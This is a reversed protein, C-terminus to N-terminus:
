SLPKKKHPRLVRVTLGKLAPQIGARKLATNLKDVARYRFNENIILRAADQATDASVSGSSLSLLLRQARSSDVALDPHQRLIYAHLAHNRSTAITRYMSDPRVRYHLLFEPIVTGRRGAKALRCWFDWDEYSTLWTDYGGAEQAHDRRILSGSAAGGCNFAALLDRDPGLPIWGSRRDGPAEVFYSVMPSVYTLEPHARLLAAAKELLTPAILDDADLPLMLPARAEQIARNRTASLGRNPQHIIRIDPRSRSLQELLELSAADTSGDNILILEFDRFTQADVSALTEPLYRGLNYFPIFISVAPSPAAPKSTAAPGLAPALAKSRTAAIMGELDSLVRVPDCLARVRAPGRRSLRERLARDTLMRGIASALAAADAVPFHLGNREHEVIASLGGVDSVIVPAGLAMAELCVMPFSEWHSPFVCVGGSASAARIADALAKRPRAPEFVFRHLHHPPIRCKLYDLMSRGFPGTDSDNGILHFRANTSGLLLVAADVFDQPGKLFQLKGFFLVTPGTAGDGGAPAAPASAGLERLLEYPNIPVPLVVHEPRHELSAFPPPELGIRNLVSEAPAVVVDAEAVAAREIHEIRAYEADLAAIRDEGRCLWGPSHLRVALTSRPFLGLTRKARITFYGEGNYDPFEIYDFPKEASLRKLADLVAMSHRMPYTPYADLAADGSDFDVAHFTVGPRLKPGERLVNEHPATLIHVEHGRAALAASMQSAYSGIGGGFFPAFERSVLCIRLRARRSASVARAPLAAITDRVITGPDCLRAIRASAHARCRARLTEDALVGDLTQALGDADGAPFLLGSEGPEIIEAMGGADSGVVCAGLAMAELCVNPFNEWLSPFCCVGGSATAARILPALEERPVGPNFAFAGEHGPRVLSRLRALMSGGAFTTDDGVFQFRVRRGRGLLTNAARVLTEVGKRRELRGFFLVTPPEAQTRTESGEKAAGVFGQGSFPYPVVARAPGFLGLRLRQVVLDLLAHTPSLILDAGRIAEDEARSLAGIEPEDTADDNLRRAETTPTHLRVVLAAGALAGDERRARIVAHGEAWYDPFEILDFPTQKHLAELTRLVRLGYREFDYRCGAADDEALEPDVTHFRVGHMLEPGRTVLGEHPPCLVHTEHGAGHWAAAMNAAYTGIGAGWFPAFERSVLCVRM